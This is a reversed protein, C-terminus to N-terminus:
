LSMTKPIMLQSVVVPFFTEFPGGTLPKLRLEVETFRANLAEIAAPIDPYKQDLVNEQVTEGNRVEFKTVLDNAALGSQFDIGDDDLVTDRYDQYRIGNVVFEAGTYQQYDIGMYDEDGYTPTGAIGGITDGEGITAGLTVDCRQEGAGTAILSYEIIKGTAEGGPLRPDALRASKRCTCALGASFPISMRLSAARARALLRARALMLLYEFATVGRDSKIFTSSSPEVAPSTNGQNGGTNDGKTSLTIIEAEDEGADTVLAQVDAEVTFSINEVRKRSVQYELPFSPRFEWAFFEAFLPPDLVAGSVSGPFANSPPTASIRVTKSRSGRSVGDLRTLRVDGTRWGGGLSKFPKPWDNELGQGTYSSVVGSPSGAAAFATLLSGTIDLTGESVQSWSVTAQVTVKRLPASGYNVKLSDYFPTIDFDILGDEGTTINSITVAHTVRDIHYLDPRAELVVDPDDYRQDDIWVPDWYPAVRLTDALAAKTVVFNQPRAIFQLSVLEEHLNEPLAVLRGFFIPTGDQSLWAWLKRSPDILNERPNRITMTLIPFDGESHTMNFDFVNEDQVSHTLANFATAPDVWAFFFM